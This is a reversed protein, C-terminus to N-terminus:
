RVGYKDRLVNLHHREHGLMSYALARVTAPSENAVGRRDWADPSLNRFMLVNSRRVIMLADVLDAYRWADFEGQRVYTDEDFGPLPNKEGRAIALARYAFIREADSVHGIVQKITWKGDAYRYSSREEDVSKLMAATSDMQSELAALIDTEPVLDIYRSFYAAHETPDPRRQM